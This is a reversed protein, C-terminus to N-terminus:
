TKKVFNQKKLGRVINILTKQELLMKVRKKRDTNRRREIKINKYWNTGINKLNKICVVNQKRRINETTNEVVKHTWSWRGKM